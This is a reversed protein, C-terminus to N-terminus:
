SNKSEQNSSSENEFLQMMWNNTDDNQISNPVQKQQQNFMQNSLEYDPDSNIFNNTFSNSNVMQYLNMKSEPRNYIPYSVQSKLSQMQNQYMIRPQSPGFQQLSRNSSYAPMNISKQGINVSQIPYNILNKSTNPYENPSIISNPDVLKETNYNSENNFISEEPSPTMPMSITQCNILQNPISNQAMYPPKKQYLHQNSQILSNKQFYNVPTSCLTNQAVIYELQGSFPNQLAYLVSQITIFSNNELRFRYEHTRIKNKTNNVTIEQFAKKLLNVDDTHVHNFLSESM